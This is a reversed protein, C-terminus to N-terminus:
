FLLHIIKNNKIKIVNAFVSKTKGVKKNVDCECHCITANYNSGLQNVSDIALCFRAVSSSIM